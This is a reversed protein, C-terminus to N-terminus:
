IYSIININKGVAFVVCICVFVFRLSNINIFCVMGFVSNIDFKKYINELTARLRLERSCITVNACWMYNVGELRKHQGGYVNYHLM